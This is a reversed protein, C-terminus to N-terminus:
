HSKAAISASRGLVPPTFPARRYPPSSAPNCNKEPTLCLTQNELYCRLNDGTKLAMQTLLSKPLQLMGDKELTIDKMM